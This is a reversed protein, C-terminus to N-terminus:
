LFYIGFYKSFKMAKQVSRYRIPLDTIKSCLTIVIKLLGTGPEHRNLFTREAVAPKENSLNTDTCDSRFVQRAVM